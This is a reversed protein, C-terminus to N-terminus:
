DKNNTTLNVESVVVLLSLSAHETLNAQPHDKKNKKHCSRCENVKHEEKNYIYYTGKFRKNKGEQDKGRYGRTTKKRKLGKFTSVKGKSHEIM